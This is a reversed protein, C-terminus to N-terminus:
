KEIFWSILQSATCKLTTVLTVLSALPNASRALLVCMKITTIIFLVRKIKRSLFSDVNDDSAHCMQISIIKLMMCIRKEVIKSIVDDYSWVFSWSSFSSTEKLCINGSRFRQSQETVPAHKRRSCHDNSRSMSAKALCTRESRTSRKKVTCYNM